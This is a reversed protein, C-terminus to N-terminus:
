KKGTPLMYRKQGNTFARFPISPIMVSCPFFSENWWIRDTLLDWDWVADNTAKSLTRFRDNFKRIEELAERNEKEARQQKVAADIAASLRILRDKLIYDNAGSKIINAAFEESVTGTVLIFPISLGQGQVIRLAEMADFQPLSNDALIVDPQFRDLAELFTNKSGVVSFACDANERKLLRQVIEADALSDELMLIKLTGDM